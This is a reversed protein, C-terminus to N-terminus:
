SSRREVPLPHPLLQTRSMPAPLGFRRRRRHLRIRRPPDQLDQQAAARDRDEPLPRGAHRTGRLYLALGNPGPGHGRPLDIPTNRDGSELAHPNLVPAILITGNFAYDLAGEFHYRTRRAFEASWLEEGHSATCILTVPGSKTGNVIHVPLALRYGSAMVCVPVELYGSEQNGVSIGHLSFAM